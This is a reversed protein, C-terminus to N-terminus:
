GIVVCRYQNSSPAVSFNLRVANASPRGVDCLVSDGNGTTRYVEVQVDLTNLNHTIDYQTASGDGFTQAFRRLRGAWTALKLPTVMTADNTGADTQAQTAIAAIGPSAETAAGAVTGFAIWQVAGTGLTFTVSTQRFAAGASTGEDVGTVAQRLEGVTNADLARTMAVAAGNWVYIGNEAPATQARVLVRDGAVMTVGDISAGPASLNVNAQTSVRCNDKWMLGEIVSDVYNKTAPEQNALPDPLNVIRSNSLMDLNSHVSKAV